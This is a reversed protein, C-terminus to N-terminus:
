AYWGKLVDNKEPIFAEGKVRKEEQTADHFKELYRRIASPSPFVRKKEKRWQREHERRKKRRMGHTEIKLLLTSLGQDAQLREIDDVCDGGALNLLILSLIIHHDTWGQTKTHLTKAIKDCLGSTHAMEMYLPLGAFSTLNADSIENSYHFPLRRHTMM